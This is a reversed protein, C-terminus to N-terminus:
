ERAKGAWLPAAEIAEHLLARYSELRSANLEGANAAAQVACGPETLHRCDDFRCDGLRERLEPFANAVESPEIGWLGIDRLGPTDVVFGGDSLPHMEAAVTTHRGGRSKKSVPATRLHLGPQLVNLLSSKGVGTPGTFLSVRGRLHKALEDIGRTETVSTIVTEYGAAEYPAALVSADDVLDAKNVVVTTPLDNAEAVVVFRDMLRADWRPDQAAGVVIVQDLNAAIARASRKKGPARRKLVSSRPEIREITLSGDDHTAMTVIDGVLIRSPGQKLRGRLRVEVQEGGIDVRHIGGIKSM